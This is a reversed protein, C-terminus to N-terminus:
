VYFIIDMCSEIAGGRIGFTAVMQTCYKHGISYKGPYETNKDKLYDKALKGLATIENEGQPSPTSAM